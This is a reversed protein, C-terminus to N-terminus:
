ACEILRDKEALRIHRWVPRRDALPRQSVEAQRGVAPASTSFVSSITIAFVGIGARGLPTAIVEYWSRFHSIWNWLPSRARMLDSFLARSALILSSSPRSSSRM